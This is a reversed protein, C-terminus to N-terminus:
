AHHRVCIMILPASGDPHLLKLYAPEIESRRVRLVFPKSTMQLTMAPSGLTGALRSCPMCVTPFSAPAGNIEEGALPFATPRHLPRAKGLAARHFGLTPSVKTKCTGQGDDSCGPSSAIGHPSTGIREDPLLHDSRSPVTPRRSM